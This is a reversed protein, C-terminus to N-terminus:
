QVILKNVLQTKKNEFVIFYTGPQSLSLLSAYRNSTTKIGENSLLQGSVDYVLISGSIERGTTSVTFTTPTNISTLSPGKFTLAENLGGLKEDRLITFYRDTNELLYSGDNMIFSKNLWTLKKEQSVDIESIGRESRNILYYDYEADYIFDDPMNFKLTLEEEEFQSVDGTIKWERDLSNEGDFEFEGDNDAICLYRKGVYDSSKQIPRIRGLGVELIKSRINVAQTNSLEIDNGLITVHNVYEGEVSPDFVVKLDNDYYASDQPLPIGYKIALRSELKKKQEANLIRDYLIVEALHVYEYNMDVADKGVTFESSVKEQVEKGSGGSYMFVHSENKPMDLPLSHQSEVKDNELVLLHDGSTISCITDQANSNFVLFFTYKEAEKIAYRKEFEQMNVQEYEHYNFLHCDFDEDNYISTYNDIKILEQEPASLNQGTLNLSVVLSLFFIKMKM